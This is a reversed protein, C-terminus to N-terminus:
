GPTRASPFTRWFQLRGFQDGIRGGDIATLCRLEGPAHQVGVSDVDATGATTISTPTAVPIPEDKVVEAVQPNAALREAEGPSVTASLANIVQFTKVNQADTLSLEHVVPNQIGAVASNRTAENGATEPVAGLQNKFVVIVKDTVNTSLAQAEAATM